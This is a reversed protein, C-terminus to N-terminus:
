SASPDINNSGRQRKLKPYCSLRVLILCFLELQEAHLVSFMEVIDDKITDWFTQYFEAPLGDLGPAKNHEM